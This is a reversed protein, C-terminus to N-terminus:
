SFIWSGRLEGSTFGPAPLSGKTRLISELYAIATAAAKGVAQQGLPNDLGLTEARKLYMEIRLAWENASKADDAEQEFKHAQYVKHEADVWDLACQWPTLTNM